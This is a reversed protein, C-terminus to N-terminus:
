IYVIFLSIVYYIDNLFLIYYLYCINMKINQDSLRHSLLITKLM